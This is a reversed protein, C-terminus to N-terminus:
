EATCTCIGRRTRLAQHGPLPPAAPQVTVLYVLDPSMPGLFWVAEHATFAFERLQTLQQAHGPREGQATRAADALGPQRQPDQMGHRAREGVSAAEDIQAVQPLGIEH